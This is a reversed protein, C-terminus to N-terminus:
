GQVTPSPPLSALTVRSLPFPATSSPKSPLPSLAGKLRLSPVTPATLASLLINQSSRFQSSPALTFVFMLHKWRLLMTNTVLPPFQGPQFFITQSCVPFSFYTM